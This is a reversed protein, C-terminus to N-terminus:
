FQQFKSGPVGCIPCKEPAYAGKEVYGCGPCLWYSDDDAADLNNYANLYNEAHSGEALKARTFVRVAAQENEEQAINIFAPYMDSAEFIEGKAADILCLDTAPVDVSEAVPREWDPDQKSVLAYEMNIHIQEAASAARFLKAAQKFGNAEAAEAYQAYKASAGTEGTVAAKLADLTTAVETEGFGHFNSSNEATPLESRVNM